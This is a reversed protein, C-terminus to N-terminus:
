PSAYVIGGPPGQLLGMTSIVSEGNASDSRRESAPTPWEAREASMQGVLVWIIESVQMAEGFFRERKILPPAAVGVYALALGDPKPGLSSTSREKALKLTSLGEFKAGSRRPNTSKKSRGWQRGRAREM